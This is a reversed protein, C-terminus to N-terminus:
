AGRRICADYRNLSANEFLLDRNGIDAKSGWCRFFELQAFRSRKRSSLSRGTPQSPTGSRSELRPLLPSSDRAVFVSWSPVATLGISGLLGRPARPYIVTTDEVANEPNQARSRGPAIQRTGKAAVSGAVIAEDAPAPCADPVTDYICQGSGMIRSDLHDVSGDDAHMLM